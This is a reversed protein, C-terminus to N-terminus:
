CFTLYQKVAAWTAEHVEEKSKNADIAKWISLTDKEKLELFGKRVREHFQISEEDLRSQEGQVRKRNLGIAVDQDYLLILAPRLGERVRNDLIDMLAPCDDRLGRAYGQYAEMSYKFRDTIVIEGADLHREIFPMHQARTSSVLLLETIPLIGEEPKEFLFLHRIKEAFPTGGPEKTVWVRYGEKKLRESLMKIQTSKGTGECGELAFFHRHKREPRMSTEKESILTRASNYMCFKELAISLYYFFGNPM